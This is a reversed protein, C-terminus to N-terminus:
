FCKAKNPMCQRKLSNKCLITQNQILTTPSACGRYTHRLRVCRRFFFMWFEVCTHGQVQSSNNKYTYRKKNPRSALKLPVKNTHNQWNARLSNNLYYHSSKRYPVYEFIMDTLIISSYLM